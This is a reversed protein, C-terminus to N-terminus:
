TRNPFYTAASQALPSCNLIFDDFSKHYVYVCNDRESVYLVAYLSDLNNQVKHLSDNIAAEDAEESADVVLSALAQRTLPHHATVVAYPVRQPIKVEPEPNRLAERTITNYLSDVLLEDGTIRKSFGATLLRELRDKEEGPTLKVRPPRLYRVVTAAYIFIGASEEIVPDLEKELHPLKVCLFRRIDEKLESLKIEELRFRARLQDGSKKIDPHPRSTLLFKLGSLPTRSLSSILQDIFEAGHDDEIEDLTDIVIVLPAQCNPKWAASWPNALMKNIHDNPDPDLLRLPVGCLIDVLPKYASVLQGVITPIIYKHSRTQEENRFCFAITSKGTGTMGSLWFVTMPSASPDWSQTWRGPNSATLCIRAHIRRAHEDRRRALREPQTSSRTLLM